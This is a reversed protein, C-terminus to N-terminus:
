RLLVMKKSATFSESDFKYLYIGSSVENGFQDKGDWTVAYSGAEKKEQMLKTVLRGLLDYIELSLYTSKPISFKINTTPNFPNPYNQTL